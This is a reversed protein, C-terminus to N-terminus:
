FVGKRGRFRFDCFEFNTSTPSRLQGVEKAHLITVQNFIDQLADLFTHLLVTSLTRQAGIFYFVQEPPKTREFRLALAEPLIIGGFLTVTCRINPGDEYAM